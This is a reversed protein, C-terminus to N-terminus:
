DGDSGWKVRRTTEPRTDNRGCGVGPCGPTDGSSLADINPAPDDVPPPLIRLSVVTPQSLLGPLVTLLEMTPTRGM